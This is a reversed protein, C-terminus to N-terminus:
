LPGFTKDLFARMATNGQREAAAIGDPKGGTLLWVGFDPSYYGDSELTSSGPPFTIFHGADPYCHMEEAYMKDHGNAVLVDWAVKSLVCSHWLQDDEGGVM